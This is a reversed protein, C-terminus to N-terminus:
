ETTLQRLLSLAARVDARRSKALGGAVGGCQAPHNPSHNPSTSDMAMEKKECQESSFFGKPVFSLVDELKSELQTIASLVERVM